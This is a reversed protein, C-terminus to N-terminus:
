RVDHLAAAYEGRGDARRWTEGALLDLLPQTPIGILRGLRFVLTPWQQDRILRYATTRGVGLLAAAQPLGIM